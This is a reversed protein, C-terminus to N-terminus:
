LVHLHAAATNHVGSRVYQSLLQPSDVNATRINQRLHHKITVASVQQPLLSVNEWAQIEFVFSLLM